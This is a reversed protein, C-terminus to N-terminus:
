IELSLRGGIGPSKVVIEASKSDSSISFSIKIGKSSNKWLDGTKEPCGSVAAEAVFIMENSLTGNPFLAVIAVRLMGQTPIHVSTDQFFVGTLGFHIDEHRLILKGM